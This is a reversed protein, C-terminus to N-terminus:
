GQRPVTCQTAGCPLRTGIMKSLLYGREALVNPYSAQTRSVCRKDRPVSLSSM